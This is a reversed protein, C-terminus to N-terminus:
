EEDDEVYFLDSEDVKDEDYTITQNDKDYSMSDGFRRTLESGIYEPYTSLPQTYYDEYEVSDLDDDDEKLYNLSMGRFDTWNDDKRGPIYYTVVEVLDNEDQDTSSEDEDWGEHFVKWEVCHFVLDLDSLSITKTM